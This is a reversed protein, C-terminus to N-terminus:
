SGRYDLTPIGIIFHHVSQRFPGIQEIILGHSDCSVFAGFLAKQLKEVLLVESNRRLASNNNISGEAGILM